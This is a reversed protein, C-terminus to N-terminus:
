EAPKEASDIVIADITVKSSELRLGMQEQLATFLSIGPEAASSSGLTMALFVGVLGPVHQIRM